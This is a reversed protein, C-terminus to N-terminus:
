KLFHPSPDPERPFIELVLDALRSQVGPDALAEVAAANLKDVVDKPTGKPAFLGGWSSFSIAPLGMEAFTPIEPAMAIRRDSTVAYAKIGAARMLPLQDLPGFLMDIQDALLDAVAAPYGRYQVLGFHTETEKQFLVAVAHAGLYSIGATAKPDAKLWAILENLDKAPMTKRAFLGVYSTVLPTIPAFDNLV